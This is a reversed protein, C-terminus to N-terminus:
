EIVEDVRALLTASLEIGIAKATKLNVVLEFKTPQEVPLEAPKAGRALRDVYNAALAFMATLSPGYSMLYGAAVLERVESILAVRHRIAIDALMARDRFFFPSGEAYLFRGASAATAVAREYDYPQERLEIGSLQIGSRPAVEQLVAWHDASLRDWLVTMATVDPFAQKVLEMRKGALEVNQLYVGTVGGSPRALSHVYGKALPDYDVALMVVPLVNAAALAAKLSAEPGAAVVVDPKRAVVERYASEWAQPDPIQVHDYIFNEGERYGLEAMRQVFAVWQPATRPQANATGVRLAKRPQQGHVTAPWAVAGAIAKLFQRRRMGAEFAMSVM